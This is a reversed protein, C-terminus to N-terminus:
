GSTALGVVVLERMMKKLDPDATERMTMMRKAIVPAHGQQRALMLLAATAQETGKNLTM